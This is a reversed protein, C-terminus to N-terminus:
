VLEFDMLGVEAQFWARRFAEVDDFAQQAVRKFSLQARCPRVDFPYPDFAVRRPGIAKMTLRVGDDDGAAYSVPVPEIHDDYPDQCCFYLGLLDWVQMLRYNTWVGKADLSARQREQWAENRAVFAQVEPSLTTLNYRGAPHKITQYRGKWLGTRHMSVILGSYPDIDAMWDLAWQYSGLQTNTMPVQLFAYPEGSQPAVLPSTEYRLWGYDHFTAARVVSDYPKLTEFNGNGWHAALQGVFRSHDTQGILVLGGSPDKRIIM